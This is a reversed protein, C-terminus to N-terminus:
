RPGSLNAGSICRLGGDPRVIRYEVQTPAAGARAFEQTLRERDEPHISKISSSPDCYASECPQGWIREYALSVYYPRLCDPDRWFFVEDIHQVVFRPSTKSVAKTPSHKSPM